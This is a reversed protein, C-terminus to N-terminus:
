GKKNNKEASLRAMMERLEEGSNKKKKRGLMHDVMRLAQERTISGEQKPEAPFSQEPVNEKNKENDATDPVTDERTAAFTEAAIKKALIISEDLEEPESSEYAPESVKDATGSSKEKSHEAILSELFRDRAGNDHKSERYRKVLLFFAFVPICFLMFIMIDVATKM